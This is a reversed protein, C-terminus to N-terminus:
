DARGFSRYKEFLPRYQRHSCKLSMKSALHNTNNYVKTFDDDKEASINCKKQFVLNITNNACTLFDVVQRLKHHDFLDVVRQEYDDSSSITNWDVTSLPMDGCVIVPFTNPSSDDIQKFDAIEYQYKSDDPPNYLTCFVCNDLTISCAVCCEPLVIDIQKSVLISKVAILSGEHTSYDKTFPRDERYLKYVNLQLESDSM